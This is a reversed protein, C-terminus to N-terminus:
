SGPTATASTVIQVNIDCALATENAGVNQLGFNGVDVILIAKFSAGTATRIADLVSATAGRSTLATSLRRRADVTDATSVLVHIPFDVVCDRMSGFKIRDPVGVVLAPLTISAMPDGFVNFGLGSIAEVIDDVVAQLDM